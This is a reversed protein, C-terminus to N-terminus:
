RKLVTNLLKIIEKIIDLVYENTEHDDWSINEKNRWTWMEFAELGGREYKRLIWTNWRYLAVSWVITKIVKKKLDKSM